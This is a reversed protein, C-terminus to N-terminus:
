KNFRQLNGVIQDLITLENGFTPTKREVIAFDQAADAGVSDISSLVNQEDFKLIVVKRDTVKSERFAWTETKESIYYWTEQGFATKSSPSGLIEVVENKTIDGPTIQSLLDAHPLNGSNNIRTTCAALLPICVTIVAATKLLQSTGIPMRM